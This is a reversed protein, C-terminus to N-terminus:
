SGSKIGVGSNLIRCVRAVSGSAESGCATCSDRLRVMTSSGGLYSKDLSWGSLFTAQFIPTKVMSM